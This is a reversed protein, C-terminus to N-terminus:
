PLKVSSRVAVRKYQGSTQGRAQRLAGRRKHKLPYFVFAYFCCNVRRALRLWIGDAMDKSDIACIQEAAIGAADRIGPVAELLSAIDLAGARYGTAATPSAARGAITGGTALVAIRPKKAAAEARGALASGPLLLLLSLFLLNM